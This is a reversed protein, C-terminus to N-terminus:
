KGRWRRILQQERSRDGIKIPAEKTEAGPPGGWKEEYYLRNNNFHRGHPRDEGQHITRSWFHFFEAARLGCARVGALVCRHAYDNDAYYGNPWFNVDDYGVTNFSGRRFLTLNRVNLLAHPQVLEDPACGAPRHLEWPRANFDKFNLNPGEFFQAAEPYTNVLFRSDFESACVIDWDSNEAMTMMADLAGPMPVVDNGMCILNDYGGGNWARDCLDNISAPFGENETHIITQCGEKSAWDAMEHDGPKAVVVCIDGRRNLTARTERVALKLFDLGGYAVIGILTEM